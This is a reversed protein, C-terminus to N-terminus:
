VNVAASLPTWVKVTVRFVPPVWVTLAASTPASPMTAPAASVTESGGMLKVGPSVKATSFPGSATLPPSKLSSPM